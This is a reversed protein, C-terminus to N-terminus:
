YLLVSRCKAESEFTLKITVPLKDNAMEIIYQTFRVCITSLSQFLVNYIYNLYLTSKNKAM